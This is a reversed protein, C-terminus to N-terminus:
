TRRRCRPRQQHADALPGAGVHRQAAALMPLHECIQDGADADRDPQVRGQVRGAREPKMDFTDHQSAGGTLFLFIVSRPRPAGNGCCGSAGALGGCGSRRCRVAGGDRCAARQPTSDAARRHADNGSAHLSSRGRVDRFDRIPCLGFYLMLAPRHSHLGSSRRTHWVGCCSVERDFYMIWFEERAGLAASLRALEKRYGCSCGGRGSGGSRGCRCGTPRFWDSTGWCPSAARREAAQEGVLAAVSPRCSTEQSSCPM